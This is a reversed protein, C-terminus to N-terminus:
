KRGKMARGFGRKAIGVGVRGGKKLQSVGSRGDPTMRAMKNIGTTYDTSAPFNLGQVMREGMPVMDRTRDATVAGKNRGLLAAGALGAALAAGFKKLKSKKKKAM